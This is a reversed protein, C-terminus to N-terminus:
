RRAAGNWCPLKQHAAVRALVGFRILLKLWAPSDPERVVTNCAKGDGDCLIGAKYPVTAFCGAPFPFVGPSRLQLVQITGDSMNRHIIPFGICCPKGLECLLWPSQWCLCLPLLSSAPISRM